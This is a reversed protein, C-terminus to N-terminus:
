GSATGANHPHPFLQPFSAGATMFFSNGHLLLPLPDQSNNVLTFLPNAKAYCRRTSEGSREDSANTTRHMERMNSM